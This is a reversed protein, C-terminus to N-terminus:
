SAILERLSCGVQLRSDGQRKRNGLFGEGCGLRYVLFGVWCTDRAKSGAVWEEGFETFGNEARCLSV